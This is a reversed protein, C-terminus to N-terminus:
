AQTADETMKDVEKQNFYKTVTIERPFLEHIESADFDAESGEQQETSPTEYTYGFYVVIGDHNESWILYNYEVWRGSGTIEDQIMTGVESDGYKVADFEEENGIKSKAM